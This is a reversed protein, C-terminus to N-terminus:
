KEFVFTPRGVTGEVRFPLPTQKYKRQMRAVIARLQRREQYLPNLPEMEGQLSVAASLLPKTLAVKGSFNANLKTGKMEGDSLELENAQLNFIFNSAKLNMSNQQLIPRKLEFEGDNVSVQGEAKIIQLQERSIALSGNIDLQGSIKRNLRTRFFDIEGLALGEVKLDNFEITQADDNFQMRVTHAGGYATSHVDFVRLPNKWFPSVTLAPDAFVVEAKVNANKLEVAEFVVNLPFSYKVRGITCDVAPIRKEVFRECFSRFNETPFRLYLLAGFLIVGYLVVSSWYFIEKNSKAM